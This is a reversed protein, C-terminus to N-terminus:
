DSSSIKKLEKRIVPLLEETVLANGEETPHINDMFLSAGGGANLSPTPDVVPLHFKEAIRDIAAYFEKKWLRPMGGAVPEKMLILRINRERALSAFEHLMAEFRRVPEQNSRAGEPDEKFVGLLRRLENTGQRVMIQDEIREIFSRGFSSATIRELYSAEDIQTIDYADNYYLSLTVIDPSFDLLVNRFFHFVRNGTAGPYAGNIIEVDYGEEKLLLELRLPYPFKLWYGNTSSTGLSVIRTVGPKKELDHSRNRFMHQALYANWRRLLPHQLHVLDAELRSGSWGAMSLNVRARDQSLSFIWLGGVLIIGALVIQKPITLRQVHIMPFLLFLAGTLILLGGSTWPDMGSSPRIMLFCGAVPILGFSSTELVALFKMRLFRSALWAYFFFIGLLWAIGIARDPISFGSSADGPVSRLSFGELTIFGKAALLIVAGSAFRRSEARAVPKDDIFAEFSRGRARIDLDFPEEGIIESAGQGICEFTDRTELYFGSPFRPHNSLFFSIGMAWKPPFARLRIELIADEQLIGRTKFDINRFKGDITRANHPGLLLRAQSEQSPQVPLLEATREAELLPEFLHARYQGVAWASAIILVSSVSARRITTIRDESAALRIRGRLSFLAMGLGIFFLTLLIWPSLSVEHVLGTCFYCSFPLHLLASAWVIRSKEPTGLCLSRLFFGALLLTLGYGTYIWGTEFSPSLGKALGVAGL